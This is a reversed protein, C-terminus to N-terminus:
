DVLKRNSERDRWADRKRDLLEEYRAMFDPDGQWREYAATFQPASTHLTLTPRGDPGFEMDVKELSELLMDQSFPAGKADLANGVERTVEEFKRRFAEFRRRALEDAIAEIKQALKDGTLDPVESIQLTVPIAIEEFGESVRSAGIRDYSHKQGEHQTANKIGALIPSKQRELQDIALMMHKSIQKKSQPFDPLMPSIYAVRFARRLHAFLFPDQPTPRPVGM